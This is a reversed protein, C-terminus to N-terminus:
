EYAYWAIDEYTWVSPPYNAIISNKEAQSISYFHAGNLPSWFRYVPSTGAPQSGKPYAYFAPGEYSWVTPPYTAIVSDKEAQSITYFHASHM